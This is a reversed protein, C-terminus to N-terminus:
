FDDGKQGFFLKLAITLAVALPQMNISHSRQSCYNNYVAMQGCVPWTWIPSRQQESYQYVQLWSSLRSHLNWVGTFSNNNSRRQLSTTATAMANNETTDPYHTTSSGATSTAPTPTLLKNQQLKYIFMVSKCDSKWKTSAFNSNFHGIENIITGIQCWKKLTSTILVLFQLPTHLISIKQRLKKLIWTTCQLLIIRTGHFRPQYTTFYVTKCMVCEDESNWETITM